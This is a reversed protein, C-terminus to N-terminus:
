FTYINILITERSNTGDIMEQVETSSLNQTCNSCTLLVKYLEFLVLDIHLKKHFYKGMLSERQCHTVRLGIHGHIYGTLLVFYYAEKYMCVVRYLM